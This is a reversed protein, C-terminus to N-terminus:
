RVWPGQRDTRYGLTRYTADILAQGRENLGVGGGLQNMVYGFALGAEGDAFGVSGGMGPTGFAQEGLIVYNGPGDRRAGWTKSFGLTFTTAIRLMEDVSSSSRTTRMAPLAEAHVLRVGNFSGDLSLPAYIRALGDASMVGGTAPGEAARFARTHIFEPSFMGGCNLLMKAGHWEPENVVKTFMPSPQDSDALIVNSVRHEEEPPLGIWVDAGLPGAVEDRLFAGITRGTIRRVIEGWLFGSTMGHYGHTTGPEWVPAERALASTALAWDTLGGEPIPDQWYPLGAQHALTMAVTINQKGNAAFEPWYRAVPADFDLLGRDSLIHLCTASVGKTASFVQTLTDRRWARDGSPETSGGWLDVVLEGKFYVALSAGIEGREAFNREFEERIAAFRRDSTGSIVCTAVAGM